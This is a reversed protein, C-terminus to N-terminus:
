DLTEGAAPRRQPARRLPVLRVEIAGAREARVRSPRFGPRTVVISSPAGLAITAPTVGVRKGEVLIGAGAPASRVEVTFGAAQAEGAPKGTAVSPADPGGRDAIAAVRDPATPAPLPPKASAVPAGRDAITAVRDPATASATTEGGAASSRWMRGVGIAVVVALAAAGIALIARQKGHRRKRRAPQDITDSAPPPPERLHPMRLPALDETIRLEGLPARLADAIAQMSAPRGAPERTLCAEVLAELAPSVAALAGLRPPPDVLQPTRGGTFDDFPLRGALAEFLIVGLAWIDICPAVLGGALQEPAMYALTGLRSGTITAAARDLSRAIGFDVIKPAGDVLMLNGPKLDRHVIGRAHAAAVGDAIAAGLRRVEPEDLRHVRQLHAALTEGDLREMVLYCDEGDAGFDLVRVVNPHVIARTRTAEDLFAQIAGPDDALHARLLKIAVRDGLFRHEAAFVESMGGRGLM